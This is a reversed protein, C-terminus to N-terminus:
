MRVESITGSTTKGSKIFEMVSQKPKFKLCEQGGDNLIIYCTIRRFVIHGSMACVTVYCKATISVMIERQVSMRIQNIAINDNPFSM